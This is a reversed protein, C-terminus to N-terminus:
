ADLGVLFQREFTPDNLSYSARISSTLENWDCQLRHNNDETLAVVACRKKLVDLAAPAWHWVDCDMMVIPKDTKITTALTTTFPHCFLIVDSAAVADDFSGGIVEVGIREELHKANLFGWLPSPHPKFRVRFGAAVLAAALRVNFDAVIIDDPDPQSQMVERACVFPEILITPRQPIFGSKSKNVAVVGPEPLEVAECVPQVSTAFGHHNFNSQMIDAQGSGFTFFRSCFGKLLYTTGSPIFRGSGSGHDHADVEGHAAMVARALLRPWSRSMSGVWLWRPIPLSGDRLRAWHKMAAASSREVQRRLWCEAVDSLKVGARQAAKRAAAIISASAGALVDEDPAVSVSKFWQGADCHVVSRASIAARKDILGGVSTAVTTKQLDIFRLPLMPVTPRLIAQRALRAPWRWGPQRSGGRLLESVYAEDSPQRQAQLAELLPFDATNIPVKGAEGIDEILAQAYAIRCLSVTWALGLLEIALKAAYDSDLLAAYVTRLEDLMADRVQVMNMRNRPWFFDIIGNADFDYDEFRMSVPCLRMRLHGTM